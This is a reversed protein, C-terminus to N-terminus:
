QQLHGKVANSIRKIDKFNKTLRVYVHAFTNQDHNRVMLEEMPLTHLPISDEQCLTQNEKLQTPSIYHIM